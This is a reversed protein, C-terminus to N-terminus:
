KERLVIADMQEQGVEDSKYRIDKRRTGEVGFCEPGGCGIM